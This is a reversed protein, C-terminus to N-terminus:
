VLRIEELDELDVERRLQNKYGILHERFIVPVNIGFVEKVVSKSFDVELPTWQNINQDFIKVKIPSCIDIQQGRYNLALLFLDWNKDKFREPGFVIYNKVDPLIDQFREELVDLDIDALERSSGYVKAALGGTVQFPINYKQLIDVIWNFAERSPKM